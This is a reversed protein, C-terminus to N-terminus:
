GRSAELVFSFEMREVKVLADERVGPGCAGTGVGAVKADLRLLTADEEVLDCPHRADELAKAGHRSAAWSFEQRCNDDGATAKLGSGQPEFVKVWRTGMRNGNEQPVEYPTQLESICDVSWVGMRQASCKDPYAEGPGLGQWKVCQLNRPLRLNLGVRPVHTPIGGEPGKPVLSVHVKLTGRHCITYTTTAEFRWALVPPSWYALVKVTVNDDGSVVSMHGLRSSLNNAGLSKWHHLSHKQDNDTPARWFSLTIAAGTIPDPELISAGGAAWATLHGRMNDFTFTFDSDTKPFQCQFKLPSGGPSNLPPLDTIVTQTGSEGVHLPLGAEATARQPGQPIVGTDSDPPHLILQTWAAEHGIAAWPVADRRVFSVTLIVRDNASDAQAFPMIAVEATKGAAIRPLALTGSALVVVRGSRFEDADQSEWTRM